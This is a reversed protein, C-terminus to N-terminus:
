IGVGPGFLARFGVLFIYFCMAGLEWAFIIVVVSLGIVMSAVAGLPLVKVDEGSKKLKRRMLVESVGMQFIAFSTIGVALPSIFYYLSELLTYSSSIRVIEKIIFILPISLSALVREILSAGRRFSVPYIYLTGFWHSLFLTIGSIFALPKHIWPIGTRWVLNYVIFSVAMVIFVTAAPAICRKSFSMKEM